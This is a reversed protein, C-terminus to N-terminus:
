QWVTVIANSGDAEITRSTSGFVFRRLRKTRPAGVVTVDYYRSQEVIAAEVGDAELLWTDSDDVADLRALHDDLLQEGTGAEDGGTTVHLLDICADYSAAIARAIDVAADSHQGGAVPVLVSAVTEDVRGSAPLAVPCDVTTALSELPTRVLPTLWHEYWTEDLVVAEYDYEDVARALLRARDHGVLVTGSTELGPTTTAITERVDAVADDHDELLHTPLDLPTQQPFCVANLVVLTTEQGTAVARALDTATPAVEGNRLPLVVGGDRAGGPPEAADWAVRSSPPSGPDTSM